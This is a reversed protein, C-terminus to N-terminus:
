ATEFAFRPKISVRKSFVYALRAAAGRARQFLLERTGQKVLFYNVARRSPKAAMVILAKPRRNAPMKGSAGRPIVDTQPIGKFPSRKPTRQGGLVQDILYSRREEIGVKSKQFPWDKKNARDTQIGRASFTNRLVLYKGLEARAERMGVAAVNTLALASAFPLQDSAVRAIQKRVEPANTDILIM